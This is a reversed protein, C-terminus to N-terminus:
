APWPGERCNGVVPRAVRCEVAQAGVWGDRNASPELAEPEPSMTGM